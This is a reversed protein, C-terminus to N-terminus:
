KGSPEFENIMGIVTFTTLVTVFTFIFAHLTYRWHISKVYMCIIGLDALIIWALSM